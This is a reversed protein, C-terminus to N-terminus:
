KIHIKVTNTCIKINPKKMNIIFAVFLTKVGDLEICRAGGGEFLTPLVINYEDCVELEVQLIKNFPETYSIKSDSSSDYSSYINHRMYMENHKMNYYKTKVSDEGTIFEVNKEILEINRIELTLEVNNGFGIEIEDPVVRAVLGDVPKGWNSDERNFFKHVAEKGRSGFEM